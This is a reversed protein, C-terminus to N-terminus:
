FEYHRHGPAKTIMIKHVQWKIQKKLLKDRLARAIVHSLSVEIQTLKPQTDIRAYKKPELGQNRSMATLSVQM